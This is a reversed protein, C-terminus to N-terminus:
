CHYIEGKVPELNQDGKKVGVQTELKPAQIATKISSAELDLLPTQGALEGRLQENVTDVKPAAIANKIATSEMDLNTKQGVLEGRLQENVTAVKPAAMANKIATNFLLKM